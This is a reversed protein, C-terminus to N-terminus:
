PSDLAQSLEIFDDIGLVEARKKPDIGSREMARLIQGQHLEPFTGKLSNILIKRRHAFAGKVTKRFRNEDRARKPHPRTFDIEVVMSGVKPPPYFAAKPVDLLPLIRAHYQVLVSMAGYQKNGPLAILRRGVEAQFTLVARSLVDKSRILKGLFPSSINFPLNGILQLRNGLSRAMGRSIL